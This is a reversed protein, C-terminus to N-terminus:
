ALISITAQSVTGSRERDSNLENYSKCEDNKSNLDDQPQVFKCCHSVAPHQTESAPHNNFHQWLCPSHSPPLFLSWSLIYANTQLPCLFHHIWCHQIGADVRCCDKETSIFCTSLFQNGAYNYTGYGKLPLLQKERRRIRRPWSGDHAGRTVPHQCLSGWWQLWSCWCTLHLTISNVM